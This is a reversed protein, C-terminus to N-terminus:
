IRNMQKIAWDYTEYQLPENKDIKFKELDAIGKIRAAFYIAAAKTAPITFFHKTKLINAVSQAALKEDKVNGKAQSEDFHWNILDIYAKRHDHSLSQFLLEEAYSYLVEDNSKMAELIVQFQKQNYFCALLNIMREKSLEAERRLLPTLLKTEDM